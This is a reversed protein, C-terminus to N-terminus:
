PTSKRMKARIPENDSYIRWETMKQGEIRAIWVAPVEWRNEPSPVGGEMVYTGGALGVLASTDGESFLRDTRIRYHPVMDFYESWGKEIAPRTSKDGLSDIFTHDPTMIAILGGMDHANIKEM